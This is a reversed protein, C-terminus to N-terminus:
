RGRRAARYRGGPVSALRGEVLLHVLERQVRHVPWGLHRAAEDITRGSSGFADLIPSGGQSRDSEIPPFSRMTSVADGAPCPAGGPVAVTLVDRASLCIRAEQAALLRIGGIAAREWPSFPVVFLPRGLRRAARATSLAGSRHPAQVVVVARGLAALLRNRALFRGPRPHERPSAESLLAGGEAVIREFLPVHERPYPRELGGGLIAVTVGGADLAGRHAAADIGRAGGSLVVCGALALDRALAETFEIAEESAARTGVVAVARRLAPLRGRFWVREPPRPLDGFGEPWGAESPGICRMERGAASAAVEQTM